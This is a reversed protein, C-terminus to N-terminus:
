QSLATAITILYQQRRREIEAEAETSTRGLADALYGEAIEHWNIESWAYGLLDSALSATERVAAISPFTEAFDRIEDALTSVTGGGERTVKEWEGALEDVHRFAGADDAIWQQAAWTAFNTWGNFREVAM